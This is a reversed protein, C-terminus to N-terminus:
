DDTRERIVPRTTVAPLLDVERIDTLRAKWVHVQGPWSVNDSKRRSVVVDEVRGATLSDGYDVVVSVPWETDVSVLYVFEPLDTM